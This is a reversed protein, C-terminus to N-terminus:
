QILSGTAPLQAYTASKTSSNLKGAEWPFSPFSGAGAAKEDPQQETEEALPEFMYQLPATKSKNAPRVHLMGGTVRMKDRGGMADLITKKRNHDDV